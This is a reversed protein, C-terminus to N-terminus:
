GPARWRRIQLERTRTRNAGDPEATAIAGVLDPDSASLPSTWATCRSSSRAASGPRFTTAAFNNGIAVVPAATRATDADLKGFTLYHRPGSLRSAARAKRQYSPEEFPEPGVSETALFTAPDAYDAGFAFPLALDFPEGSWHETRSIRTKYATPSLTKVEVDIGVADLNTKLAQALQPCGTCNFTYLIATRRQKGVLRRAATLDPTFPYVDVDKFGPMGLPLYQDTPQM